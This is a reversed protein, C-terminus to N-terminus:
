RRVPWRSLPALGVGAEQWRFTRQRAPCCDRRAPEAGAGDRDLRHSCARLSLVGPPTSCTGSRLTVRLPAAGKFEAEADIALFEGAWRRAESGTELVSIVNKVGQEVRRLATATARCVM